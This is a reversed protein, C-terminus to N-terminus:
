KPGHGRARARDIGSIAPLDRVEAQQERVVRDRQLAHQTAELLDQDRFPKTLFDVAGSKLARVSMPIDGHATIFIIPIQVGIENVRRQFDLGGM